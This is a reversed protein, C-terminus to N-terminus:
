SGLDLAARLEQLSRDKWHHAYNATTMFTRTRMRDVYLIGHLHDIEHQLIRAHWGRAEIVRAEGREDLYELRVARARPVLATFGEVSLCGEFYEVPDALTVSLRPNAIVYFPVAAREREALWAPDADRLYEDRDEIVALRLPEGIQPAALGVGPAERMTDRMRAILRQVADGRIEEPTLERARRRLIPEGIQVIRLTDPRSLDSAV